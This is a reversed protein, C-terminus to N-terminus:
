EEEPAQFVELPFGLGPNRMNGGRVLGPVRRASQEPHAPGPCWSALSLPVRIAQQVGLLFQVVLPIISFSHSCRSRSTVAKQYVFQSSQSVPQSYQRRSALSVPPSAAALAALPRWVKQRWGVDRESVAGGRGARVPEQVLACPASCGRSRGPDLNSDTLPRRRWRPAAGPFSPRPRPCPRRTPRPRTHPRVQIPTAVHSTLLPTPLRSGRLFPASRFTLFKVLSEM